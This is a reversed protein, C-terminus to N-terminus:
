LGSDIVTVVTFSGLTRKGDAHRALGQFWLNLAGVGPPLLPLHYSATLVGSPGIMGLPGRLPIATAGPQVLLPGMPLEQFTTQTGAILNVLDGPAGTFTLTIAQGERAVTPATLSLATTPDSNLTGSNEVPAGTPGATGCPPAAGGMGGTFTTAHRRVTTGAGVVLGPGGDGGSSTDYCQGLLPGGRGGQVSSNSLLLKAPLDAGSVSAGRGGSGSFSIWSYGGDGGILASDFVAAIGDRIDLARGGPFGFFDYGGEGGLLTCSAMATTGPSYTISAAPRAYHHASRANCGVLRVSGPNNQLLIPSSSLVGELRLRSLV